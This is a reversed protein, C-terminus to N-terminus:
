KPTKIGLKEKNSEKHTPENETATCSLLTCLIVLALSNKM